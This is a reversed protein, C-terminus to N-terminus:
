PNGSSRDLITHYPHGELFLHSRRRPSHWAPKKSSDIATKELFDFHPAGSANYTLITAPIITIVMPFGTM